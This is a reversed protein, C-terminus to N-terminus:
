SKKLLLPPGPPFFVLRPTTLNYSAIIPCEGTYQVPFNASELDLRSSIDIDATGLFYNVYSNNTRMQQFHYM